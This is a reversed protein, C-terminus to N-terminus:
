RRFFPYSVRPVSGPAYGPHHWIYYTDRYPKGHWTLRDTLELRRSLRGHYRPTLHTRYFGTRYIIIYAHRNRDSADKYTGTQQPEKQNGTDDKKRIRFLNMWPDGPMTTIPAFLLLSPLFLTYNLIHRFLNSRHKVSATSNHFDKNEVHIATTKAM